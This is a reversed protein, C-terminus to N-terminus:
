AIHQSLRTKIRMVRLAHAELGAKAVM